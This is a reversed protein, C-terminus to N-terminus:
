RDAFSSGFKLQSWTTALKAKAEASTQTSTHFNLSGDEQFVYEITINGSGEKAENDSYYGIFRMKAFLGMAPQLM